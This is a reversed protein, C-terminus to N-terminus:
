EGGKNKFKWKYGGATNYHKLNRCCQSIHIMCIGTQKSAEHISKYEAIYNNNKDYQVVKKSLSYDNNYQRNCWELNEVNNNEKNEDKHNVELLNNPNAIFAQAVLRHVLYNKTVDNKTLRVQIYGRTDKRLYIYRISNKQLKRVNGYNSIQYKGDYNPINIWIEEKM